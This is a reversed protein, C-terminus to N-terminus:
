RSSPRSSPRWRRGPPTCSTSTRPCSPRLTRAMAEVGRDAVLRRRIEAEVVERLRQSGPPWSRGPWASTSSTPSGAGSRPWREMLRTSSATSTSSGCRATCTTPAASRAARSWGPTVASRPRPSAACRTATWPAATCSCPPWSRPRRRRRRRGGGPMSGPVPVGGGRGPGARRRRRRRRVAAARLVRRLRHRLGEPPPPAEGAHGGAGGPVGRPRRAPRARAGAHRRPERDDLGAARRRRLEHVFGQLVDLM